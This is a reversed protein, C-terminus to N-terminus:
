TEMHNMTRGFKFNSKDSTIFTLIKMIKQDALIIDHKKECVM